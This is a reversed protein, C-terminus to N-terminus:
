SFVVGVDFWPEFWTPPILGKRFIHEHVQIMGGMKRSSCLFCIRFWGVLDHKKKTERAERNRTAKAQCKWGLLAGLFFVHGNVVNSTMIPFCFVALSCRSHLDIHIYIYIGIYKCIYLHMYICIYTQVHIYSSIQLSHLLFCCSWGEFTRGQLRVWDGVIPPLFWKSTCLHPHM